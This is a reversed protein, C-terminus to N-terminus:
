SEIFVNLMPLMTMPERNMGRAVGSFGNTNSTGGTTACYVLKSM